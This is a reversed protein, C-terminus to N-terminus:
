SVCAVCFFLRMFLFYVRRVAVLLVVYLCCACVVDAVAVAFAVAVAVLM